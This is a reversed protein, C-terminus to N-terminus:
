DLNLAFDINKLYYHHSIHLKFYVSNFQYSVWQSLNLHLHACTINVMFAYVNFAMVILLIFTAM